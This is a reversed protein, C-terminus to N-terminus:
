VDTGGAVTISIATAYSAQGEGISINATPSTLNVRQVGPQHLAAFIGSLTVDYGIKHVSDAYVTVADIASQLVVTSDPGPYMVLEATIEYEVISATLVNVQDTMPRVTEASLTENVIDLLSQAATGDGNRSLVYVTVIGPTPSTPQVDKIDADAGLAHFTYSGESGATTYAEPSLQIRTRFDSDAEMVAATPPVTTSDAPTITLREVNVNAGLQDLDAGTAYALMVAKASENVRQRVLLERYASVEALKYAPDSEVLATFENGDVEMRAQFDSLIDALITEFDLPEIVNPAPLQSLDVVTFSGAM